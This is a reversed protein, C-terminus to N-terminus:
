QRARRDVADHGRRGDGLGPDGASGPQARQRRALRRPAQGGGRARQRRRGSLRVADSSGGRGPRHDGGRQRRRPGRHRRAVARDALGRPPRRRPRPREGPRGGAGSSRASRPGRRSAPVPPQNDATTAAIEVVVDVADGIAGLSDVPRYTFTASGSADITPEYRLAALGAQGRVETVRGVDPQTFEAIRLADREPDIDNLLVDVVVETGARTESFDDAGVPERNPASPDLLEITVIATAENGGGDAITYTFQDTGSTDTDPRYTVTSASSIEVRGRRAPEVAIVAIADGDPDFDNATVDIPIQAGARATVPDDVARPPDDIGDGDPENDRSAGGAESGVGAAGSGGSGPEVVEGTEGILPANADNKPISRIGWPHIAWVRDGDTHDIWVLDPGVAVDLQAGPPVSARGGAGEVIEERRWDIRVVEADGRRVVAGADGAIGFLDGGDIDLGTIEVSEEIGDVGVCWLRDNAGLWGCSAGPGDAQLVVESPPVDAPLEVLDGEGFSVAGVEPDFM